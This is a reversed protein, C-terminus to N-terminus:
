PKKERKERDGRDSDTSVADKIGKGVKLGARGIGKGFEKGAAVPKGEKMEHGLERGGKGIEQGAGRFSGGVSDPGLGLKGATEVDLRGTVPLGESNQYQRISARTHPGLLGDVRGQYLGKDRLSQQATKIDQKHTAVAASKDSASATPALSLCLLGIALNCTATKIAKM